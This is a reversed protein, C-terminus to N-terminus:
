LKEIKSLSKLFAIVHRKKVHPMIVIRACDYRPIYSVFWGKEWLKEALSKTYKSRFAVVNLSPEV